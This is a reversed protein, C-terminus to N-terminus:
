KIEIVQSTILSEASEEDTGLSRICTAVKNRTQKV